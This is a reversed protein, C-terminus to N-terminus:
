MEVLVPDLPKMTAKTWDQSKKDAIKDMLSYFNNENKM